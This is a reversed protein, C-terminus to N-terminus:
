MSKALPVCRTLCVSGDFGPANASTFADTSCATNSADCARRLLTLVILTNRVEPACVNAAVTACDPSVVIKLSAVDSMRMTDAGSPM